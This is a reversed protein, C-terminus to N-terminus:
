FPVEVGLLGEGHGRGSPVRCFEVADLELEPGDGANWRGGAPGSLRLLHPMGHRGLGTIM